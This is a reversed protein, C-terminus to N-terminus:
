TIFALSIHGTGRPLTSLLQTHPLPFEIPIRTLTMQIEEMLEIVIVAFEVIKGAVVGLQGYNNLGAAFIRGDEAKGMTWFGGAFVDVFRVMAQRRRGGQERREQVHWVHLDSKVKVKRLSQLRTFLGLQGQSPEGFAVVEGKDSLMV